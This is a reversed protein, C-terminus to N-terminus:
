FTACKAVSSSFITEIKSDLDPGPRSPEFGCPPMCSSTQDLSSLLRLAAEYIQCRSGSWGVKRRNQHVLRSRPQRLRVLLALEAYEGQLRPHIVQNRNSALLRFVRRLTFVAIADLTLARRTRNCTYTIHAKASFEKNVSNRYWLNHEPPM